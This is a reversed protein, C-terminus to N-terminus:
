RKGEGSGTAGSNNLTDVPELPIRQYRAGARHMITTHSVHVDWEAM